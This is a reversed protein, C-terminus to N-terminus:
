KQQQTPNKMKAAPDSQKEPSPLFIKWCFWQAAPDPTKDGVWCSTNSFAKRRKPTSSPMM